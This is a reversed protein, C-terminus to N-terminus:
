GDGPAPLFSGPLTLYRAPIEWVVLEPPLEAFTESTRYEEMPVFPGGAEEAVNLIDAELEDMLFADFGWRPDASFSTGVLTVPVTPTAFLGGGSSTVTAAVPRYREDTLGVADRISDPVPVFASLDGVLRQPAERVLTVEADFSLAAAAVQEGVAAAVRAAGSPRWHSDRAFFDERRLVTAADVVPVGSAALADRLRVSESRVQAVAPRFRRPLLGEAVAAKSPVLVVVVAVGADQLRRSTDVVWNRRRNASVSSTGNLRVEERTFLWGERGVVVGDNGQRFLIYRPLSVMPLALRRLPHSGEVAGDVAATLEGTWRDRGRIAGVARAIPRDVVEVAIAAALGIVMLGLLVLAPVHRRRRENM